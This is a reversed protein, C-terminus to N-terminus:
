ISPRRCGICAAPCVAGNSVYCGGGGGSGGGGYGTAGWECAEGNTYCEVGGADFTIENCIWGDGQLESRCTSDMGLIHVFHCSYCGYYTTTTGHAPATVSCFAGVLLLAGLLRSFKAAM